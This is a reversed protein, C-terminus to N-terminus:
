THKDELLLRIVSTTEHCVLVMHVVQVQKRIVVAVSEHSIHCLHRACHLLHEVRVLDIVACIGVRERMQVEM